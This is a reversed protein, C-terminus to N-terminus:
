QVVVRQTLSSNSGVLQVLYMGKSLNAFDVTTKSAQGVKTALNDSFVLGGDIGIVNITVNQDEKSVFNINLIDTTPNPYISVGSV